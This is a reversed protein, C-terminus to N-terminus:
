ILSQLGFCGVEANDIQSRMYIHCCGTMPSTGRSPHWLWKNFRVCASDVWECGTVDSSLISVPNEPIVSAEILSDGGCEGSVRIRSVGSRAVARLPVAGSDVLRNGTGYGAATAM